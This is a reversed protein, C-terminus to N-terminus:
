ALMILVYWCNKINTVTFMNTLKEEVSIFSNFYNKPRARLDL